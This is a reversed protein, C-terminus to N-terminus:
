YHHDTHLVDLGFPIIRRNLNTLSGFSDWQLLLPESKRLPLRTSM